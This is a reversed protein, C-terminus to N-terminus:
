RKCIYLIAAVAVSIGIAAPPFAWYQVMKNLFMHAFDSPEDTAVIKLEPITVSSTDIEGIFYDEMLKRADSSHGTDEFDETSDRGQSLM